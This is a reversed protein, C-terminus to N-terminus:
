KCCPCTPTADEPKAFFRAGCRWCEDSGRAPDAMQELARRNGAGIRQGEAVEAPTADHHFGPLARMSEPGAQLHATRQAEHAEYGADLQEQEAKAAGVDVLEQATPARGLYMALAEAVPLAEGKGCCVQCLVLGVGTADCTRPDSFYSAAGKGCVECPNLKSFKGAKRTRAREEQKWSRGALQEQNRKASARAAAADETRGLSDYRAAADLDGAIALELNQKTSKTAM